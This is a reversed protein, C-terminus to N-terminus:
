KKISEFYRDLIIQQTEEDWMAYRFACAVVSPLMLCKLKSLGYSLERWDDASFETRKLTYVILQSYEKIQDEESEHCDECLTILSNDPYEWPILDKEYYKHHVHLTSQTDACVQCMFEDRSLIELRKKQWRPDKLKDSYSAM